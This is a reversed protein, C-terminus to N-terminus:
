LGQKFQKRTARIADAQPFSGITLATPFLPLKLKEKQM